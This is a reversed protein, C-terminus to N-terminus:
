KILVMKRTAVVRHDAKLVSFYIGSPYAHANWLIGYSGPAQQGEALVQLTRGKVDVISLEAWAAEALRYPVTTAPNFPNPFNQELRHAGPVAAGEGVDLGNEVFEFFEGLLLDRATEPYVTEFPFGLVMVKGAVSGGPFLGEYAVGAYGASCGTYTLFGRSGNPSGLVDPYRVNYTGHTGNDFYFPPLDSFIGEGATEARYYVGSQNNPADQAYSVHLFERCFAKDASSGKYDLDWAIEAGSVFLKGGQRLCNKAVAQEADSFTEDATSEEGLIWIVAAADQLSVSGDTVAENSASAPVYAHARVASAHQIVFNRTNGATARDFGNVILVPATDFVPQVALVESFPGTGAANVGAIKMYYCSDPDLGTLLRDLTDCHLTDPFRVGDFGYIVRFSDVAADDGTRLQVSGSVEGPVLALSRLASPLAPAWTTFYFVASWLTEGQIRVKWYYRTKIELSLSPTHANTDLDRVHLLSDAFGPDNSVLLEYCKDPVHRWSFVPRLSVNAAAHAPTELRVVATTSDTFYMQRIDALALTDIKGDTGHFTLVQSFAPVALLSFIILRITNAKM